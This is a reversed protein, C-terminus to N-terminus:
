SGESPTNVNIGTQTTENLNIMEHDLTIESDRYGRSRKNFASTYSLDTQNDRYSYLPRNRNPISFLFRKLTIRYPAYILSTILPNIIPNLFLLYLLVYALWNMKSQTDCDLSNWEFLHMRCINFIRYPLLSFSTWATTAFIFVLSKMKNKFKQSQGICIGTHRKERTLQYLYGSVILSSTVPLVCYTVMFIDYFYMQDSTMQLNCNKGIYVVNFVWIWTMYGVSISWIFACLIFARKKSMTRDYSLPWQFYILKDLNLMTLSLGSVALGLWNCFHTVACLRVHRLFEHKRILFENPHCFVTLLLDGVTMSIIFLHMTDGSRRFLKIACFIVLVNFITAAVSAALLLDDVQLYTQFNDSEYCKMEISDDAQIIDENKTENGFYDFIENDSKAM